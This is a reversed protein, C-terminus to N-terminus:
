DEVQYEAPPEQVATSRIDQRQLNARAIIRALIRLGRQLTEYDESSYVPSVRDQPTRQISTIRLRAASQNNKNDRRM